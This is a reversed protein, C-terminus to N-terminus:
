NVNASAAQDTYTSYKMILFRSIDGNGNVSTHTHTNKIKKQQTFM